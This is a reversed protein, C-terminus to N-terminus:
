GCCGQERLVDPLEALSSIMTTGYKADLGAAKAIHTWAREGAIINAYPITLQYFPLDRVDSPRIPQQLNRDRREIMTLGVDIYPVAAALDVAAAGDELFREFDPIPVGADRLVARYQEAGDGYTFLNRIEDLHRQDSNQEAGKKRVKALLEVLDQESTHTQQRNGPALAHHAIFEVSMEPQASVADIVASFERPLDMFVIPGGVMALDIGRGVLYRRLLPESPTVKFGRASLARLLQLGRLRNASRLSLNASERVLFEAFRLRREPNSGLAAENINDWTMPVVLRSSDRAERIAELAQLVGTDLSRNLAVRGLQVWMNMDLCLLKPFQSKDEPLEPPLPCIASARYFKTWCRRLCPTRFAGGKM